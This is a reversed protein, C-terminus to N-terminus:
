KYSARKPRCANRREASSFDEQISFYLLWRFWQLATELSSTAFPSSWRWRTPLNMNYMCRCLCILHKGLGLESRTHLIENAMQRKLWCIYVPQICPKWSTYGLCEMPSPINVYGHFSHNIEPDVSRCIHCVHCTQTRFFFLFLFM